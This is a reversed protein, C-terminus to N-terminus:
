YGGKDFQTKRSVNKLLEISVRATHCTAQQFWVKSTNTNNKYLQCLFATIMYCSNGLRVTMAQGTEDEFLYPGVIGTSTIGAWMVLMPSHLLREHMRRPYTASWFRCNQKNVHGNLHFNAEDSFMVNNFNNLRELM